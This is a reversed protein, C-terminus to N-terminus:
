KGTLILTFDWGCSVAKVRRCGPLPCPQFTMVESIHRLGLQGKHNQGCMLLDGSEISVSLCISFLLINNYYWWNDVLPFVFITLNGSKGKRELTITNLTM